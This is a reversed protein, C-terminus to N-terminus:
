ALESSYSSKTVKGDGNGERLNWGWLGVHFIRAVHAFVSPHKLRQPTDHM